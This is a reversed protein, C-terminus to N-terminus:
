RALKKKPLSEFGPTNAVLEFNLRGAIEKLENLLNISSGFGRSLWQPPLSLNNFKVPVFLASYNTHCILHSKNEAIFKQKLEFPIHQSIFNSPPMWKPNERLKAAIFKLYDIDSTSLNIEPLIIDKSVVKPTFEYDLIGIKRIGENVDTVLRKIDYENRRGALTITLSM